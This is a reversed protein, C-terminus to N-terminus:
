VTHLLVADKLRINLGVSSIPHGDSTFAPSFNHTCALKVDTKTEAIV